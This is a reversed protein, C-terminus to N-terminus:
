YGKYEPWADPLELRLAAASHCHDLTYGVLM